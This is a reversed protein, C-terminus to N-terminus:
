GYVSLSVLVLRTAQRTQTELPFTQKVLPGM